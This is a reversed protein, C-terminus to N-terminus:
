DKTLKVSYDVELDEAMGMDLDNFIGEEVFDKLEKAFRKADKENGEIKLEVSITYSVM